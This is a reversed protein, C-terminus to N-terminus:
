KKPLTRVEYSFGLRKANEEVSQDFGAQRRRQNVSTANAIPWVYCDLVKKGTQKNEVQQCRIQTGYLQEKGQRMLLRDQMTAVLKFPLEKRHGAQEILPFYLAIDNSHQIVYWAAEDTPSGVLTTGPYGYQNVIHKVRKLNSSDIVSMKQFIYQDLEQQSFHNAKILSDKKQPSDAVDRYLQDVRYISDLEVKLQYNVQGYASLTLLSVLVLLFRFAIM